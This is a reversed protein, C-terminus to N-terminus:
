IDEPWAEPRIRLIFPIVEVDEDLTPPPSPTRSETVSNRRLRDEDRLRTVIPGCLFSLRSLSGSSGDSQNSEVCEKDSPVASSVTNRTGREPPSCSRDTLPMPQIYALSKEEEELNAPPPWHADQQIVEEDPSVRRRRRRRKNLNRKTM